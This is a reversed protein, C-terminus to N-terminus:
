QESSEPVTLRPRTTGSARIAHISSVLRNAHGSHTARCKVVNPKCGIGQEHLAARMVEVEREVDLSPTDLGGSDGSLAPTMALWARVDEYVMRAARQDRAMDPMGLRNNTAEHQRHEEIREDLYATLAERLGTNGAPPRYPHHRGPDLCPGRVTDCTEATDHVGADEPEDCCTRTTLGGSSEPVTLREGHTAEYEAFAKGAMWGRRYTEAMADDPGAAVDLSPAYMGGSNCTAAETAEAEIALIFHTLDLPADDGDILPVAALRRGAATRPEDQTSM